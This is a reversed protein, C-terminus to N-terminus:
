VAEDDILLLSPENQKQASSRTARPFIPKLRALCRLASTGVKFTRRALCNFTSVAKPLLILLISVAADGLLRHTNDPEVITRAVAYHAGIQKVRHGVFDSGQYKCHYPLESARRCVSLINTKILPTFVRPTLKRERLLTMLLDMTM